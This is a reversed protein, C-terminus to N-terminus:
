NYFYGLNDLRDAVEYQDEDMMVNEDDKNPLAVDDEQGDPKEPDFLDM